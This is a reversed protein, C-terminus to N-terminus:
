STASGPPAYHIHVKVNKRSHIHFFATSDLGHGSMAM